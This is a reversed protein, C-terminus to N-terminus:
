NNKDVIEFPKHLIEHSIPRIKLDNMNRAYEDAKTLAAKIEEDTVNNLRDRLHKKKAPERQTYPTGMIGTIPKNKM